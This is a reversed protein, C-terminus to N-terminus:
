VARTTKDKRFYGTRTKAWWRGFRTPLKTGGQYPSGDDQALRKIEDTARRRRVTSKKETAWGAM